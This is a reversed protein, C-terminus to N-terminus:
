QPKAAGNSHNAGNEAVMASKKRLLEMGQAVTLGAPVRRFDSSTENEKIRLNKFIVAKGTFDLLLHTSEWRGNGIDAQEVVFKGGRDLHGLIGWGFNVQKFITADMKALRREKLDILMEGQMGEYVQLERNPPDYRPNPRFTLKEMKRGGPGTETGAYQYIFADPLAAVMQRTREDDEKQSKLKKQLAGPDNLLQQLRSEENQREEDTLPKDNIAILRGITGEKTEIMEKTQSGNPKETRLRFMMPENKGTDKLENQVTGRVLEGPDKPLEPQAPQQAAFICGALLLPLAYKLRANPMALSM